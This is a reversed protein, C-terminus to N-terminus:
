FQSYFKYRFHWIEIKVSLYNKVLIIMIKNFILTNSNIQQADILNKLQPLSATIIQDNQDLFAISRDFFDIGLQHGLEKFWHTSADISCGSAANHHEDVAVIVFRGYTIKFSALLGAGHAAWNKVAANLYETIQITDLDSFSRDAQYIWIRASEVQQDFPILM